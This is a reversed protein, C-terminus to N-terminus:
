PKLVIHGLMGGGSAGLNIAMVMIVPAKLESGSAGLAGLEAPTLATRGSATERYVYVSVTAGPGADPMAATLAPEMGLWTEMQALSAGLPDGTIVCMQAPLTQVGMPMTGSAVLLARSDPTKGNTRVEYDAPKFSPNLTPPAKSKDVATWGAADAVALAAKWDGHTKLCDNSFDGFLDAASAQGALAMMAGALGLALVKVDAEMLGRTSQAM